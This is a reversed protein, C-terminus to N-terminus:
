FGTTFRDAPYRQGAPGPFGSVTNVSAAPIAKICYAAVLTLDAPSAFGTRSFGSNPFCQRFGSVCTEGPECYTCTGGDSPPRCDADASCQKFTTVSCLNHLPGSTCVGEDPGEPDAPNLRCDAPHCFGLPCESDVACPQKNNSGGLCAPECDNPKELVGAGEGKTPCYCQYDCAADPCESDDTCPRGDNAGGLCVKNAFGSADCLYQPVRASTGTTLPNYDNDITGAEAQSPLPPCDLSTTGFIGNPGGFPPEPRCEKDVNVGHSCIFDTVCPPSGEISACDTDNTCNRRDGGAPSGCFGGCVPCPQPNTLGLKTPTEQHVHIVTEGTQLNTTGTIDDIFFTSPCVSVGGAALPLPPGHPTVVCFNGTGPCDGNGACAQQINLNCHKGVATREKRCTGQGLAACQADNSCPAHSGASCNPGVICEFDSVGDCDYLDLLYGAGPVVRQDHSIGTWGSDSDAGEARESIRQRKKNLCLCAFPGDAAGCQSPCAADATGDCEEELDYPNNSSNLINDGCSLPTAYEFDILDAAVGAEPNDVADGHTNIICDAAKAVTTAKPDCDAVGAANVDLAAINDDTCKGLIKERAKAEAKEIKEKTKLNATACNKAAFGFLKGKNVANRCKAVEKHKANAFKAGNKAIERQCKLLASDTIQGVMSGYEIAILQDVIAEHSDHICNKLDDITFAGGPVAQECKGPYGISAFNFAVLMGCKSDIKEELKTVLAAISAALDTTLCEPSGVPVKLNKDNCKQITKMKKKVFNVGEKAVTELCKRETDSLASATSIGVALTLASAVVAALLIRLSREMM